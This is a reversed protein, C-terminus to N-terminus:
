QIKKFSSVISLEASKFDVLLKNANNLQYWDNIKIGLGVVFVFGVFVKWFRDIFDIYKNKLTAQQLLDAGCKGCFLSRKKNVFGCKSCKIKM